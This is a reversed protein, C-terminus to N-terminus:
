VDKPQVHYLMPHDVIPLAVIGAIKALCLVISQAISPEHCSDCDHLRVKKRIQAIELQEVTDIMEDHEIIHIHTLTAENGAICYRLLM